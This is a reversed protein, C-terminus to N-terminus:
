WWVVWLQVASELSCVIVVKFAIAVTRELRSISCSVNVGPVALGSWDLTTLLCMTRGSAWKWVKVAGGRCLVSEYGSVLLWVFAVLVIAVVFVFVCVCSSIKSLFLVVLSIWACSRYGALLMKMIVKSCVLVYIYIYINCIYVLGVREIM